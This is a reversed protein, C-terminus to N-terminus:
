RRERTALWMTYAGAAWGGVFFLLEGWSVAYIM